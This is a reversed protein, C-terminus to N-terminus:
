EFTWFWLENDGQDKPDHCYNQILWKEAKYVSFYNRWQNHFDKWTFVVSGWHHYILMLGPLPKTGDPLLGDGQALASRSSSRHWWIMDCPWSSNFILMVKPLANCQRWLSHTEFWWGWSQKSLRKYLACILSFMLARRWQGKTLSNVPSWHIGWVLDLLASFTEMQHRWWPILRKNFFSYCAILCIAQVLLMFFHNSAFIHCLYGLCWGDHYPFAPIFKWSPQNTKLIIFFYDCKTDIDQM